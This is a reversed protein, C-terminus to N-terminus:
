NWVWSINKFGLEELGNTTVFEDQAAELVRILRQETTHDPKRLEASVEEGPQYPHDYDRPRSTTLLTLSSGDQYSGVRKVTPIDKSKLLRDTPLEQLKRILQAINEQQSAITAEEWRKKAELRIAEAEEHEADQKAIRERLKTILETRVFKM